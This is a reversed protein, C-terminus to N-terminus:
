IRDRSLEDRNNRDLINRRMIAVFWCCCCSGVFGLFGVFCGVLCCCRGSGVLVPSGPDLVLGFCHEPTAELM